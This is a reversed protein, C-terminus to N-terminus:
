RAEPRPRAFAIGACVVVRPEWTRIADYVVLASAHPATSGPECRVVVAPYGAFTGVCYSLNADPLTVEKSERRTKWPATVRAIRNFGSIPFMNLLVADHEESLTVVLLIVQGHYAVHLPLFDVDEPVPPASNWERTRDFGPDFEPNEGTPTSDRKLARLGVKRVLEAWAQIRRHEDPNAHAVRHHRPCLFELASRLREEADVRDNDDQMEQETGTAGSGVRRQAMRASELTTEIRLGPCRYCSGKLAPQARWKHVAPTLHSDGTHPVDM